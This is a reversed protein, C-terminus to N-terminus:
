KTKSKMRRFKKNPTSGTGQRFSAVFRDRKKAIWIYSTTQKCCTAANQKLDCGSKCSREVHLTIRCRKLPSILGFNTMSEIESHLLLIPMKGALAIKMERTLRSINDRAAVIPMYERIWAMRRTKTWQLCHTMQLWGSTGVRNFNTVHSFLRWLFNIQLCRISYQSGFFMDFFNHPVSSSHWCSHIVCELQKRQFIEVLRGSPM